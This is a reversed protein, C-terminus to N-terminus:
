FQAIWKKLQDILPAFNGTIIKMKPLSKLFSVGYNKELIRKDMIVIMGRDKKNRILRGFGQKFKIIAHPVHYHIFANKGEKEMQETIAKTIPDSPVRFPLKMIIVCELARGPVDVGEWFSDTGLLVSNPQTKFNNLLIHRQADGHLLINYEDGLKEKLIAGFENLMKYSTFLIFTRGQNMQILSFIHPACIHLFAQEDFVPMDKPIAIVAQKEFDFPSDYIEETLLGEKKFRFLGLRDNLYKFSRNVALTASTLICSSAPQFLKKYLIDALNLPYSKIKAFDYTSHKNFEFSYVCNSDEMLWLKALSENLEQLRNTAGSLDILLDESYHSILLMYLERLSKIYENIIKVLHKRSEEIYPPLTNLWDLDIRIKGMKQNESTLDILHSFFINFVERLTEVRPILHSDLIEKVQLETHAPLNKYNRLYPLVGGEETKAKKNYLIQLIKNMDTTSVEEGLFDIATEEIHHAEDFVFSSLPPLWQNTQSTNEPNESSLYSFLFAYNTIIINSSKVKNRAEFFYCINYFTCNRNPCVSSDCCVQDWIRDNFAFTIESKDGGKSRPQWDVLQAFFKYEKETLTHQSQELQFFRRRCLYNSWGKVLSFQFPEELIDKILPIDKYVIQEQLNITLTCIIVPRNVVLSYLISPVLYAFTKGTGTGAEIVATKDQLLTKMITEAMKLQFPRSEFCQLKQSLVGGTRFIENVRGMLERITDSM